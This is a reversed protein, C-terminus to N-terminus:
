QRHSNNHFRSTCKAASAKKLHPAFHRSSQQSRSSSAIEATWDPTPPRGSAQAILATGNMYLKPKKNEGTHEDVDTPDHKLEFTAYRPDADKPAPDFPIQKASVGFTKELASVFWKMPDDYNTMSRVIYLDPATKLQQAQPSSGYWRELDQGLTQMVQYDPQPQCHWFAAVKSSALVIAICHHALHTTYMWHNTRPHVLPGRQSFERFAVDNCCKIYDFSTDAPNRALIKLNITAMTILLLIVSLPRLRTIQLSFKPASM